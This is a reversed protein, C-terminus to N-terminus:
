TPNLDLRTDVRCGRCPPRSWSGSVRPRDSAIHWGKPVATGERMCDSGEVVDRAIQVWGDKDCNYSMPRNGLPDWTVGPPLEAGEPYCSNGAPAEGQSCVWEDGVPNFAHLVAAGAGVVVGALLVAGAVCAAAIMRRSRRTRNRPRDSPRAPYAGIGSPHHDTM